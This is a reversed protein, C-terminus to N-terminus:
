SGFLELGTSAWSMEAPYVCIVADVSVGRVPRVRDDGDINTVDTGREGIVTEMVGCTGTPERRGLVGGADPAVEAIDATNYNIEDSCGKNCM